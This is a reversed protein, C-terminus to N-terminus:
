RRNTESLAVANLLDSTLFPKTLVRDAGLGEAATLMFAQDFVRGGGSMAVIWIQPYKTQVERILEIGDKEAMLMDTVLVDIGQGVAAQSSLVSAAMNGNTATLVAHGAEELADALSTLVEAEDDVVLVRM